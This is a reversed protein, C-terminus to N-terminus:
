VDLCIHTFGHDSPRLRDEYRPAPSAYQFFEIYVNATRMMITRAASGPVDIIADIAPNDSWRMESGEVVEFGIVDRYFAVLRDLDSTHIAGHHIGRIM